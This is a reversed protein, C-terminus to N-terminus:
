KFSDYEYKDWRLKSGILNLYCLRGVNNEVIVCDSTIKSCRLKEDGTHLCNVPNM